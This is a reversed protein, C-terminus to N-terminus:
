FTGLRDWARKMRGADITYLLGGLLCLGTGTISTALIAIGQDHPNLYNTFGFFYSAGVSLFGMLGITTGGAFVGRSVDGGLEYLLHHQYGLGSASLM